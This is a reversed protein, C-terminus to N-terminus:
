EDEMILAHLMHSFERLQADTRKDLNKEILEPNENYIKVFSSLRAKLRKRSIPM